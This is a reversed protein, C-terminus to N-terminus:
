GASACASSARSRRRLPISGRWHLLYLDLHDLKLRKLSRECAEVVGQTSANHPYVKSVIFLPERALGGRIAAQLAEGLLSEAGGEAYMEATDFVRYGIDLALRLSALEAAHARRSQGMRWTGLGLAPVAQGDPLQVTAPADNQMLWMRAQM